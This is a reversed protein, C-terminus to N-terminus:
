RIVLSTMINDTTFGPEGPGPPKYTMEKYMESLTDYVDTLFMMPKSLKNKQEAMSYVATDKQILWKSRRKNIQIYYKIGDKRITYVEWGYPGPLPRYDIIEVKSVPVAQPKKLSDIIRGSGPRSAGKIINEGFWLGLPDVFNVPDNLVYGYLNTDGGTFLVPDKTTFCGYRADYDRAGFHTLLTQHDYLGGAFGFPQFGPNTDALVNGYEDYEMQQAIEGTEVNIVLRPSGVHDTVIRYTSGNKVMYEPTNSGTVYIFQSVLNNLGDLEAAVHLLDEYLFGKKLIGNEKKGVRRNKGDLVYEIQTSDPLTVSLLNGFADYQYTTTKSDTTQATLDGNYNYTFATSGYQLLRDQDDYSATITGDTGKYSQRNGNDTYTYVAASNGNKTVETLRGATDYTYIYTNSSENITETRKWIRGTKDREYQVSFLVTQDYKTIRGTMEGFNNYSWSDTVKTIASDTLLGNIADYVLNMSGANKMLGDNDYSYDTTNAGNISRSSIRFDNDYTNSVTGATTGSFVTSTLLAGDYSYSITEGSPATISSVHGSMSDYTHVIQNEPSSGATYLRGASDYTFNVSTGDPRLIKVPRRDLDYTYLTENNGSGLDPAKYSAPLNVANFTFSHAPRSPPVVSVMFGNADYAYSIVRKDPLTQTIIRGAPDYAFSTVRDLADTISALFGASDYAFIATRSESEKGQSVTIIRGHEDYAYTIADLSGAQEGTLSGNTNLTIVTKRSEPSTITFTNASADYSTTYTKQNISMTETLNTLSLPDDPDSLTVTRQILTNLIKGSPTSVWMKPLPAQLGFRPDPYRKITTIMGDPLYNIETGDTLSKKVSQLGDPATTTSIEEGAPIKKVQYNSSVGMASTLDIIQSDEETKHSLQSYGGAQDSAKVLRGTEDYEFLYTDGKPTIMSTLLGDNKYVFQTTENAPTTVSAIYGDSNLDLITDQGLPTEISVPNGTQDRYVTTINGYADKIMILRNSDDYEFEYLVNGTFSNLTKLHRGAANFQYIQNSDESPIFISSGSFRPFYMDVQRINNYMADAIYLKGDPGVAIGLPAGMQASPASGGNGGTGQEGNGAVTTIIGEPGVRRVRMGIFNGSVYKWNEAIYLSGDPGLAMDSPKTLAANVAPGGDGTSGEQGNGAITNIIGNIGVKRVRYNWADLIYISGDPAVTVVTPGLQAQVAPGGDGSFQWEGNGALTSIIGDPGIRLVRKNNSDAIYISSDPGAAIDSASFKANIAPKDDGSYITSSPNCSGAVTKITGDAEIRRIMTKHNLFYLTGDPGTMINEPFIQAETAKVGDSTCGEIGIGAVTSIIGDTGVRRIRYNYQDALYISGDPAIAISRPSNLKADTALGGDGSFGSSGSSSGAFASISRINGASKRQGNGLYLVHGVPDYAHHVNLSWAGLGFGESIWTGPMSVSSSYTQWLTSEMRAPIYGPLGTGSPLGFSATLPAPVAYYSDYVYGIRIKAPHQGQLIRDYADKGDWVFVYNQDPAAPFSKAFQKGAIEVVLDIRKLTAPIISGSLPINLSYGANYGRVRDSTYHLYYQTGAISVSESFIQNQIEIAGWEKEFDPANSPYGEPLAQPQKPPEAGPAQVVPFNMDYPSLHYIPVRWLVQGANYTEALTKREGDTIGLVSLTAANDAVNDNDTDLEAMDNSIGLIKIIRGDKSPVWAAKEADYYAVPVDTGAPFNLFNEVYFYVPKNFVLSKASSDQIEDASLEVAYTYGVMPPLEAPMASLGKDGVTYETLRLNLTSVPKQNGDSLILKATTDKSILMTAQRTGDEDTVQTGSAVQIPINQTLDVTNVKEDQKILVVEPLWIYDQWPAEIQRHVAIYGSKKYNILLFGGGNVAMDFNGDERTMTQGFEPHDSVTIIVSPVPSAGADIVRGRLVCIRSSVITDSAVGTQIPDQGSYLFSTASSMDTAETSEIFPAKEVPDPPIKVETDSIAEGTEGQDTVMEDEALQLDSVADLPIMDESILDEAIDIGDGPLMDPFIYEEYIDQDGAIDPFEAIFVDEASQLDEFSDQVPVDSPAQEEVIDFGTTDSPTQEEATDFGSADGSEEQEALADSPATEMKDGIEPVDNIIVMDDPEHHKKGSKCNILM